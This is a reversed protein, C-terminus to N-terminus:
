MALAAGNACGIRSCMRAMTWSAIGSTPSVILHPAGVKMCAPPMTQMMAANLCCAASFKQFPASNNSSGEASPMPLQPLSTETLSRGGFFVRSASSRLAALSLSSPTFAGAARLVPLGLGGGATGASRTAASSRLLRADFCQSAKGGLWRRSYMSQIVSALRSSVRWRRSAWAISHIASPLCRLQFYMYSLAPAYGAAPDSLRQLRPGLGRPAPLLLQPARVSQGRVGSGPAAEGRLRGEADPRRGDDQAGRGRGRLGGHIGQARLRQQVRGMGGDLG